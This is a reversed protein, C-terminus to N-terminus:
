FVVTPETLAVYLSKSKKVLEDKQEDKYYGLQVVEDNIIVTNGSYCRLCDQLYKERDAEKIVDAVYGGNMAVRVAKCLMDGSTSKIANLESTHSTENKILSGYTDLLNNYVRAYTNSLSRYHETECTKNDEVKSSNYLSVTRMYSDRLSDLTTKVIEKVDEVTSESKINSEILDLIGIADLEDHYKEVISDYLDGVTLASICNDEVMDNVQKNTIDDLIDILLYKALKNQNDMTFKCFKYTVLGTTVLSGALAVLKIIKSKTM